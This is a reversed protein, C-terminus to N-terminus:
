DQSSMLVMVVDTYDINVEFKIVTSFLLSTYSATIGFVYIFIDIISKPFPM